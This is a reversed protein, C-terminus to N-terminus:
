QDEGEEAGAGDADATKNKDPDDVVIEEKDEVVEAYVLGEIKEDRVLNNFVRAAEFDAKFKGAVISSTLCTIDRVRL